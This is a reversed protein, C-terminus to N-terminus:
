KCTEKKKANKGRMWDKSLSTKLGIKRLMRRMSQLHSITEDLEEVWFSAEYDVVPYKKKTCIAELLGDPLKKWRLFRSRRRKIPVLAFLGGDYLYIDRTKVDIRAAGHERCWKDAIEQKNMM